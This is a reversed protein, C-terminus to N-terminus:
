ARSCLPVWLSIPSPRPDGLAQPPQSPLKGVMLHLLLGGAIVWTLPGVAM